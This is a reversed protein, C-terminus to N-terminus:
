GVIVRFLQSFGLDLVGLIIGVFISVVIVLISLRTAQERTPWVVKRLEGFTQRFFGLGFGNRVDPQNPSRVARGGSARAM